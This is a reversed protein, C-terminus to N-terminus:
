YRRELYRRTHQRFFNIRIFSFYLMKVDDNNSVKIILLVNSIRLHARTYNMLCLFMVYVKVNKM